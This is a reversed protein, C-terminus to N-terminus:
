LRNVGLLEHLNLGRKGSVVSDIDQQAIRPLKSYSKGYLRQSLFEPDRLNEFVNSTPQTGRQNGLSEDYPGGEVVGQTRPPQYEQAGLLKPGSGAQQTGRTLDDYAGGGVQIPKGSSDLVTVQPNGSTVNIPKTGDPVTSPPALQKLGSSIPGRIDTEMPSSAAKTKEFISKMLGDITQPRGMFSDLIRGPLSTPSLLAQPTAGVSAAKEELGTIPAQKAAPIIRAQLYHKMGNLEGWESNTAATIPNLNDSIWQRYTDGMSKLVATDGGNTILKSNQAKESGNYFNNLQSNNLHSQNLVDDVNLYAQNPFMGSIEDIANKYETPNLKDLGKPLAAIARQKIISTPLVKTPDIRANQIAPQMAQMHEDMSAQAADVGSQVDTIPNGTIAAGRQMNARINPAAQLFDTDSNHPNAAQVLALDPKNIGRQANIADGAANVLRGTTHALAAQSVLGVGLGAAQGPHGSSIADEIQDVPEKLGHGLLLDQAARAAGLYDGKHIADMMAQHSTHMDELGKDIETQSNANGFAYALSAVPAVTAGITGAIVKPSFSSHLGTVFDDLTKSGTGSGDVTGKSFFDPPLTDSSAQQTPSTFFDSPLTDPNQTQTPM